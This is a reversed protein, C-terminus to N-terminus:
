DSKYLVRPMGYWKVPDNKELRKKVIRNAVFSQKSIMAKMIRNDIAHYVKNFKYRMNHELLVGLRKSLVAGALEVRFIHITKSPAVKLTNLNSCVIKQPIKFKCTRFKRM